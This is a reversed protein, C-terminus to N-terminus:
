YEEIPEIDNIYWEGLLEGYKIGSRLLAERADDETADEPASWIISVATVYEKIM